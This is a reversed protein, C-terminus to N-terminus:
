PWILAYGVQFEPNTPNAPNGPLYQSFREKLHGIAVDTMDMTSLAKLARRLFTPNNWSCALSQQHQDFDCLCVFFFVVGHYTSNGEGEEEEM